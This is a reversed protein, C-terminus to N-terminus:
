AATRRVDRADGVGTVATEFADRLFANSDAVAGASAIGLAIGALVENRWDPQPEPEPFPKGAKVWEAILAALVPNPEGLPDLGEGESWRAIPAVEQGLKDAVFALHVLSRGFRIGEDIPPLPQPNLAVLDLNSSLVPGHPILGDIARPNLRAIISLLTRNIAM